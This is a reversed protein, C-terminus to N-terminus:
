ASLTARVLGMEDDAERVTVCANRNNIRLGKLFQTAIHQLITKLLCLSQLAPVRSPRARDTTTEESEECSVTPKQCGNGGEGQTFLQKVSHNGPVLAELLVIRANKMELHSDRSTVKEVVETDYINSWIQPM